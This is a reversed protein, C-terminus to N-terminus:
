QERQWFFHGACLGFLFPIIPKKGLGWFIESITNGEDKDAVAIIEYCMMGGVLLYFIRKV